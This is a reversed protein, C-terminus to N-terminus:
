SPGTSAAFTLAIDELYREAVHSLNRARRWAESLEIASHEKALDEEIASIVRRRMVRLRDNNLNLREVMTTAAQDRGRVKGNGLYKFRGACGAEIPNVHNKTDFWDKKARGCTDTLSGDNERDGCSLFLNTYEVELDPYRSRPRFHEIHWQDRAESDLSLRRGCYVCQDEQETGLRASLANKTPRELARFTPKWSDCELSLWDRFEQPPEGKNSGRM